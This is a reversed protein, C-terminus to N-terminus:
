IELDIVLPYHDSANKTDRNKIVSSDVIKAFVNKSAFCYDLRLDNKNGENEDLLAPVTNENKELEYFVDVYKNEILTKPVGFQLKGDLALKRSEQADLKSILDEPYNDYEALCNFDGLIIKNEYKGQRKIITNLEKLKLEDNRPILHANVVSVEGNNTEIVTHVAANRFGALAESKVFPVNSFVACSYNGFQGKEGGISLFYHPLSLEKALLEMKGDEFYNAEQIALYDPSLKKLVKLILDIRDPHLGGTLINYSVFRM